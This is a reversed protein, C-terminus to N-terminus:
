FITQKHHNRTNLHRKKTTKNHFIPSATLEENNNIPLERMLCIEKEGKTGVFDRCGANSNGNSTM